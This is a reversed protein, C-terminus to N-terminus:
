NILYCVAGSPHVRWPWYLSPTSKLFPLDFSLVNLRPRLLAKTRKRSVGNPSVLKSSVPAPHSDNLALIAGQIGKLPRQLKVEEQKLAVLIDM